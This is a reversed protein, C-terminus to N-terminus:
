KEGCKAADVLAKLEGKDREALLEDMGAFKAKSKEKVMTEYARLMGEVGALQAANEDKNGPNELKFTAMGITYQGVLESGYKNKDDLAPKLFEGVCAIISVDNIEIVYRIAWGRIDKADKDFPKVELFKAAKILLAKQEEKTQGFSTQASM